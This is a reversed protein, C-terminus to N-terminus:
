ELIAVAQSVLAPFALREALWEDSARARGHTRAPSHPPQGRSVSDVISEHLNVAM